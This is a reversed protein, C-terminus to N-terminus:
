VVTIDTWAVLEGDTKCKVDIFANLKYAPSSQSHINQSSGRDGTVLFKMQFAPPVFKSHDQLTGPASMTILNGKVSVSVKGLSGEGSVVTGQPAVSAISPSGSPKLGDPIIFYWELKKIASGEVAGAVAPNGGLTVEITSNQEVKSPFLLCWIWTKNVVLAM